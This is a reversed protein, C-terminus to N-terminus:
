GKVYTALVVLLGAVAVVVGVITLALIKRTLANTTKILKTSTEDLQRITDILEATMRVEVYDSKSSLQGINGAEERLIQLDASSFRGKSSFVGRIRLGTDPM